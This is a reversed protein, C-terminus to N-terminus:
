LSNIYNFTVRKANDLYRKTTPNIILEFKNECFLRILKRSVLSFEFIPANPPFL